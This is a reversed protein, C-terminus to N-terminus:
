KGTMYYSLRFFRTFHRIAEARLQEQKLDSLAQQYDPMGKTLEDAYAQEEEETMHHERIDELEGSDLFFGGCDYCEDVNVGKDVTCLHRHMPENCKPCMLVGRDGDNKRPSALAQKLLDGMGENNEDLKILEMWDLWLGMCGDRCVDVSVGGFDETVM